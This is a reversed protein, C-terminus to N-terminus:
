LFLIGTLLGDYDKFFYFFLFSICFSLTLSGITIYCFERCTERNEKEYEASAYYSDTEFKWKDDDSMLKNISFQRQNRRSENNARRAM